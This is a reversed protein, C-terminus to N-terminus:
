AWRAQRAAAVRARQELQGWRGAALHATACPDGVAGVAVADAPADALDDHDHTAATRVVTYGGDAPKRYLDRRGSGFSRTLVGIRARDTM